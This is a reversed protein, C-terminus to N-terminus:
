WEGCRLGLRHRGKRADGATGPLPSVLGHVHFRSFLPMAHIRRASASNEYFSSSFNLSLIRAAGTAAQHFLFIRRRDKLIEIKKSKRLGLESEVIRHFFLSHPNSKWIVSWNLMTSFRQDNTSAEPMCEPAEDTKKGCEKKSTSSIDKLVSERMWQVRLGGSHDECGEDYSEGGQQKEIKKFRPLTV